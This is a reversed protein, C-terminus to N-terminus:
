PRPLTSYAGDHFRDPMTRLPTLTMGGPFIKKHYMAPLLEGTSTDVIGIALRKAAGVGFERKVWEPLNYWGRIQRAQPTLGGAGNLRIGPPFTTTEGLKSLYKMLYGVGAKAKQTNTMGHPWFPLADRGCATGSSTDWKPMHVGQPLWVLLHYHVAGRKQLEGVWVYRCAVLNRKCWRRYRETATSIHDPRWDDLGVYTLTVFWCQPPRHGRTSLGHLHGAAWVNRKLNKVRKIATEKPSFYITLPDKESHFTAKSLNEHASTKSSVLGSTGGVAAAHVAPALGGLAVGRQDALQGPTQRESAM